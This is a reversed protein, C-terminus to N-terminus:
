FKVPNPHIIKIYKESDNPHTLFSENKYLKTKDLSGYKWGTNDAGIINIYEAISLLDSKAQKSMINIRAVAFDSHPYVQIHHKTVFEQQARLKYFLDMDNTEFIVQKIKEVEDYSTNKKYAEIMLKLRKKILESKRFIFDIAIKFETKQLLTLFEIFEKIEKRGASSHAKIYEFYKSKSGFIEILVDSIQYVSYSFAPLDISQACLL